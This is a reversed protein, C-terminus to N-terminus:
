VRATTSAGRARLEAQYNKWGPWWTSHWRHIRAFLSRPRAAAKCRIPCDACRHLKEIYNFM